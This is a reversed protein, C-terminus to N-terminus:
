PWGLQTALKQMFVDEALGCERAIFTLLPEASGAVAAARWSKRWDDFQPPSAGAVSAVLNKVSGFAMHKDNFLLDWSFNRFFQSFDSSKAAM